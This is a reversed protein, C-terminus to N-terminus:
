PERHKKRFFVSLLALAAIGLLFPISLLFAISPPASTAGYEACWVLEAYSYFVVACMVDSLLIALLAFLISLKKM